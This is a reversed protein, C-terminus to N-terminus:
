PFWVILSLFDYCEDVIFLFFYCGYFLHGSICVDFIISCSGILQEPVLQQNFFLKTASSKAYIYLLFQILLCTTNNKFNFLLFYLPNLSCGKFGILLGQSIIRPRQCWSRGIWAEKHKSIRTPMNRTYGFFVLKRKVKRERIKQSERQIKVYHFQRDYDLFYDM